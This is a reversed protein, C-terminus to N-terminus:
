GEKKERWPMGLDDMLLRSEMRSLRGLEARYFMGEVVM